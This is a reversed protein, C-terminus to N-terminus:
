RTGGFRHPHAGAAWPVGLETFLAQQAAAQRMTAAAGAIARGTGDPHPHLDTEPIPHPAPAATVVEAFATFPRTRELPVALPTGHRRHDLLNELLPIRGPRQRLDPDGPLRLRDTPYELRATGASGTVTLEGAVFETACLTVAATVTPGDGTIRVAATDDVEVPRTRFRELEVTAAGLPGALDLSQMIAHAFPNVLAGDLTPTGEVARRGAWPSRTWYSDPRWWAGAAAIGTVTGLRGARIAATLEDLAASALAQFGIQVARGTARAAAALRDHETLDLVPPKELLLDCGAALVHLAIPLHTHPPTVVVVVDPQTKDLMTTHDHFTAVGDVPADPAAEVPRVDCLGVLRVRGAQQLRHVARRHHLGHGAAGVIAVTPTVAV